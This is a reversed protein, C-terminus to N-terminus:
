SKRVTLVYVLWLAFVVGAAVVASVGCMGLLSILPAFYM